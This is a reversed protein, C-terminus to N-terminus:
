AWTLAILPPGPPAPHHTHPRGDRLRIPPRPRDGHVSEMKKTCTPTTKKRQVCAAPSRARGDADLKKGVCPHAHSTHATAFPIFIM